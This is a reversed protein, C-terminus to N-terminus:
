FYMDRIKETLEKFEIRLNEPQLIEADTGFSLLWNFLSPKDWWKFTVINGKDTEEVYEIGFEDIIRWKVSDSFLISAKIEGEQQNFETFNYSLANERIEFSEDTLQLDILRNLKFMRYARRKLCYGWVYWSSWVFVLTYPEITRTTEGNPSYYTFKIKRNKDIARQILEIKPALSSKHWSSLDILIHENNIVSSKEVTLKDMLQKYKNTKSVSDLGKLGAIIYRMESSTFITKDIKYGDMVSIGGNKGRVTVIPIGAKCLDEIDRNITRRSVEFKEALYPATVSDKQMLVSLIGMLRDIKMNIVAYIM